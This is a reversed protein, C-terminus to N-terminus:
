WWPRVKIHIIPGDGDDPRADNVPNGCVDCRGQQHRDAARHDADLVYPDTTMAMTPAEETTATRTTTV